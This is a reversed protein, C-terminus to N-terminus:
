LGGAKERLIPNVNAVAVGACFRVTFVIWGHFCRWVDPGNGLAIPHDRSRWLVRFLVPGVNKLQIRFIPCKGEPTGPKKYM